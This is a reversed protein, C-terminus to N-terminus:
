EWLPLWELVDHRCHPNTLIHNCAEQYAPLAPLLLPVLDECRLGGHERCFLIDSVCGHVEIFLSGPIVQRLEQALQRGAETAPATLYVQEEGDNAGLPPAALRVYERLQQIRSPHCTAAQRREVAAVDHNPLQEALYAVTQDILPTVLLRDLDAHLRCVALLGGRPALVLQDLTQELHLLQETTWRAALHQVAQEWHAEGEPLLLQGTGEELLKDGSPMKREASNGTAPPTLGKGGLRGPTDTATNCDGDSQLRRAIERLRLRATETERRKEELRQRALRYFAAAAEQWIERLRLQVFHRHQEVFHRLSRAGRSGLLPLAGTGDQCADLAAQLDAYAQRGAVSLQEAQQEGVMAQRDCWEGLLQVAQDLGALRQGPREALPLLQTWCEQVWTEALRRLREELQRHLRSRFFTSDRSPGGRLGIWERTQEWVTRAWQAVQGVKAVAPWQQELEQLWRSVAETTEQWWPPVPSAPASPGVEPLFSSPQTLHTVLATIATLDDPPGDDAWRQLLQVCLKHAVARLLLGRPYWLNYVGFSRFPTRGPAPPRVRHAELARGLPTTLENSVYSALRALCRRFAAGSREELVLLYTASFPLGHAELRLGDPGGYQAVFLVDPDAYHHLETLGAVVNALEQDPTSPDTPAGLYVFATLPAAQGSPLRQLLRRIAHGVDLLMGGSGGGVSAFVLVQPVADRVNLGTQAATQRLAEPHTALHVERKLRAAFRLYHDCFALRGFARVGGAQLSRPLSYLKERPLWELIQDLQRRRYQTVPQLPLLLIEESHLAAEPPGALAKVTAEPDCDVYVFRLAPWQSAEGLRDVLRRRIEQLARRGFSGIGLLLTPRLTGTETQPVTAELARQEESVRRSPSRVLAPTPPTTSSASGTGDQEPSVAAPIEPMSLQAMSPLSLTGWSLNDLSPLVGVPRYLAALTRIFATCSPFRQEPDKALARAVIEREAEPLMSLDPAATMHQLALQRINKGDFPRRGTLLEIYVIALSYQDSHRSIKNAFTEPAAYLPTVGGMLGSVSSRELTKVLGFDAVKVRDAVLFLNRPKVDLHQLGHKEILYDLGVAADDLYGLLKERPIGPLGRQQYGLFCEHLNQDALEMVIILEGDIEQIQEISLLFPHRVQKVRELAKLEQQARRDELDLDHLNGYVFKIAKHIGGPALCKWVEGFGGSGIPELLRYGPLPETGPERMWNM